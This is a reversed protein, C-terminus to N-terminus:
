NNEGRYPVYINLNLCEESQHQLFPLIRRFHDVRALPLHRELQRLDPLRQPCVPQHKLAVRVSEWKDMPSTPPMFRLEGDLVSAYQLGLYAEVRQPLSGLGSGRRSQSQPPPLTILLGRLKGYQTAIVRPSLQQAFVQGHSSTMLCLVLFVLAPTVAVSVTVDDAAM